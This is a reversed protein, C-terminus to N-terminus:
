GQMKIWSQITTVDHSICFEFSTPLFLLGTRWFTGSSVNKPSITVKVQGYEAGDVFKLHTKKCKKKFCIRKMTNKWTKFKEIKMVSLLLRLANKRTRKYPVM